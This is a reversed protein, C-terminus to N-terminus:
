AASRAPVDGPADTESEDKPKPPFVPRDKPIGYQARLFNFYSELQDIAEPPLNYRARLYPRFSPLGKPTEYGALAYLDQLPVELAAAIGTLTNPSPAV